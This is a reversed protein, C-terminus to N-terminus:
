IKKKIHAFNEITEKQNFIFYNVNKFYKKLYLYFDIKNGGFDLFNLKPHNSFYSELIEVMQPYYTEFIKVKHSDTINSTENEKQNFQQIFEEQKELNKQPYNNNPLANLPIEVFYCNLKRRLKRIIFKPLYHVLESQYLKNKFSMISILNTPGGPNSGPVM